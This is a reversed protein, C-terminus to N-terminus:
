ILSGWVKQAAIGFKQCNSFPFKSLNFLLIKVTQFSFKSLKSFSIKVNQFPFNQCNPFPFNQCNPFPFKSLKRGVTQVCSNLFWNGTDNNNEFDEAPLSFRNEDRTRKM